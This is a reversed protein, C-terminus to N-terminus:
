PVCYIRAFHTGIRNLPMLKVIFNYVYIDPQVGNWLHKQTDLYGDLTINIECRAFM